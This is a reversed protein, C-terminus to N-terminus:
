STIRDWSGVSSNSATKSAFSSRANDTFCDRLSVKWLYPYWINCVRIVSISGSWRPSYCPLHPNFQLLCVWALVKTSSLFIRKVTFLWINRWDLRCHVLDVWALPEFTCNSFSSLPVFNKQDLTRFGFSFTLFLRRSIRPIRSSFTKIASGIAM